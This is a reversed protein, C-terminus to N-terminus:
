LASFPPILQGVPKPRKIMFIALLELNEIRATNRLILLLDHLNFEVMPVVRLLPSREREFRGHFRTPASLRDCNQSLLGDAM